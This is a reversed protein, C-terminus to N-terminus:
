VLAKYKLLVVSASTITLPRKRPNSHLAYKEFIRGLSLPLLSLALSNSNSQFALKLDRLRLTLSILPTFLRSAGQNSYVVGADMVFFPLFGTKVDSILTSRRFHFPTETKGNATALCTRFATAAGAGAAVAAVAAVVAATAATPRKQSFLVARIQV